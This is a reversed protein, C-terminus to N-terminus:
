ILGPWGDRKSESNASVEELEMVENEVGSHRVIFCRPLYQLTSLDGLLHNIIRISHMPHVEIHHLMKNPRTSYAKSVHSFDFTALPQRHWLCCDVRSDLLLDEGHCGM